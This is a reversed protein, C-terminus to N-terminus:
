FNRLTSVVKSKVVIAAVGIALLTWIIAKGDRVIEVLVVADFPM